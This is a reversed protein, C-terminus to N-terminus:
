SKPMVYEVLEVTFGDQILRRVTADSREIKVAMKPDAIWRRMGGAWFKGTDADKIVYM